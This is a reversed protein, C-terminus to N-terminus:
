DSGQQYENMYITRLEQRKVKQTETKPLHSILIYEKPISFSRLNNKLFNTLGSSSPETEASSKLVLCAVVRQGWKKDPVGIVAAEAIDPHMQLEEYIKNPKVIKGQTANM